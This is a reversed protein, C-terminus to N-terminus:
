VVELDPGQGCTFYFLVRRVATRADCADKVFLFRAGNRLHRNDDYNRDVKFISGIKCYDIHKYRGRDRSMLIELRVTAGGSMYWVRDGRTRTKEPVAGRACVVARSPGRAGPRRLAV